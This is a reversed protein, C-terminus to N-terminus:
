ARSGDDELLRGILLRPVELRQVEFAEDVAFWDVLHHHVCSGSYRLPKM